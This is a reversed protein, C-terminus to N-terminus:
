GSASAADKVESDNARELLYPAMRGEAVRSLYYTKYEGFGDELPSLKRIAKGLSVQNAIITRLEGTTVLKIDLMPIYGLYGCWGLYMPGEVHIRTPDVGARFIPYRNDEIFKKSKDYTLSM